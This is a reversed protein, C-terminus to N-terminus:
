PLHRTPALKGGSLIPRAPSRGCKQPLAPRLSDIPISAILGSHRREAKLRWYAAIVNDAYQYSVQPFVVRNPGANYAVLAMYPKGAFRPMNAIRRLYEMGGSISQRPNFPDPVRMEESTGPMLQLLGQAGKPSVANPDFNSEVLTMARGLDPDVRFRRGAGEFAGDLGTARYHFPPAFASPCAHMQGFAIGPWLVAIFTIRGYSM